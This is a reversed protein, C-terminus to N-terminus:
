YIILRHQGLPTQVDERTIDAYSRVARSKELKELKVADYAGRRVEINSCEMAGNKKGTKDCDGVSEQPCRPDTEKHLKCTTGKKLGKRDIDTDGMELVYPINMIEARFNRFLAGQLPKTFHNGLMKETPCHKIVVDGTEVWDKIFYYRVNIHKTNKTRSKKGTNELLMASMNDQYLINKDIGYGQADLFYRTWLMQSM